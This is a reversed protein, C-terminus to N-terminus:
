MKEARMMHVIHGIDKGQNYLKLAQEASLKCSKIRQKLQNGNKAIYPSIKMENNSLIGTGGQWNNLLPVAKEYDYFEFKIIDTKFSTEISKHKIGDTETQTYGDLVKKSETSGYLVEETYAYGCLVEEPETQKKFGAILETPRYGAIRIMEEIIFLPMRGGIACIVSGGTNLVNKASNLLALHSELLYARIKWGIHNSLKGCLYYRITSIDFNSGRSRNLGNTMDHINLYPLNPLNEYIVDIGKTKDKLVKDLPECLNGTRGEVVVGNAYGQVNYRAWKVIYEDTDTVIIRELDRFAFLAGIADAGNSSGVSAFSEIRKREQFCKKAFEEFALYAFSLWNDWIDDKLPYMGDAERILVPYNEQGGGDMLLGAMLIPTINKLTSNNLSLNRQSTDERRSDQMIETNEIVM